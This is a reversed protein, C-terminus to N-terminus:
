LSLRTVVPQNSDTPSGQEHPGLHLFKYFYTLADRAKEKKQPHASVFLSEFFEKSAKEVRFSKALAEFALRLVTLVQKYHGNAFLKEAEEVRAYSPRFNEGGDKFNIEVIKM